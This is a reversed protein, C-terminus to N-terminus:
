SCRRRRLLTGTLGMLVLLARSPEPIAFAFAGTLTADVADGTGGTSLDLAIVEEFNFGVDASEFTLTSSGNALDTWAGGDYTAMLSASDFLFVKFSSTPAAAALGTITLYDSQGLINASALFSGVLNDGSDVGTIGISYDGLITDFGSLAEDPDFAFPGLEGFLTLTIAAEVPALCAFLCTTGFAIKPLLTM